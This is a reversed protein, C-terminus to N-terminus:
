LFIPSMPSRPCMVALRVDVCRACFPRAAVLRGHHRECLAITFLTCDDWLAATREAGGALLQWAGLPEWAVVNAM